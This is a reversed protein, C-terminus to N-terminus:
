ANQEGKEETKRSELDSDLQKEIEEKLNIELLQRTAIKEYSRLCYNHIYDYIDQYAPLEGQDRRIFPRIKKLAFAWANRESLMLDALKDIETKSRRMITNNRKENEYHVCHGIEHLLTMITQFNNLDGIIACLKDGRGLYLGRSNGSYGYSFGYLVDYGSPLISELDVVTGQNLEPNHSDTDESEQRTLIFNKLITWKGAERFFEPNFFKAAEFRKQFGKENIPEIKYQLDVSTGRYKRERSGLIGRSYYLKGIPKRLLQRYKKHFSSDVKESSVDNMSVHRDLYQQADENQQEAASITELEQKIGSEKDQNERLEEQFEENHVGEFDGTMQTEDQGPQPVEPM